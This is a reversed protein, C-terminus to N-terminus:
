RPAQQCKPCVHTGRQGVVLRRITAGCSRCAKGARGYVAFEDQFAGPQGEPTRYFVDFSSGEAAIARAVRELGVRQDRVDLADLRPEVVVVGAAVREVWLHPPELIHDDVSILWDLNHNASM